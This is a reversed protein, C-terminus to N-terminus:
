KGGVNVGSILGNFKTGSKISVPVGAGDKESLGLSVGTTLAPVGSDFKLKKGM